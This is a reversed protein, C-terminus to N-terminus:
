CDLIPSTQHEAFFQSCRGVSMSLLKFSRCSLTKHGLYIFQKLDQLSYLMAYKHAAHGPDKAKAKNASDAQPIM